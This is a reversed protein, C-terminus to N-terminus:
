PDVSRGNQLKRFTGYNTSLVTRQLELRLRVGIKALLLFERLAEMVLVDFGPRLHLHAELSQVQPYGSM